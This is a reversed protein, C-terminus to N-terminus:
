QLSLSEVSPMTADAELQLEASLSLTAEGAQRESALGPVGSIPQQRQQHQARIRRDLCLQPLPPGDDSLSDESLVECPEEEDFYKEEKDHGEVEILDYEENEDINKYDFGTDKGIVFTNYMSSVFEKKLLEKHAPDLPGSAEEEMAEEVKEVEDKEDDDDEEEEEFMDDEHEEQHKKYAREDCRDLHDFIITTIRCDARDFDQKRLLKEEETLHQGVLQDYLLPNRRRMEAETFHDKHDAITNDGDGSSSSDGGARELRQVAAWRRNRVKVQHKRKDLRDRAEQLYHATVPDRAATATFLHLHAEQLFRGFRYLFQSPSSEILGLAIDVKEDLSLEPEGRQQSKLVVEPNTALHMAVVRELPEQVAGMAPETGSMPEQPVPASSPKDDAFSGFM